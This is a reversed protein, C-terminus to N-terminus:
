APYWRASDAHVGAPATRTYGLAPKRSPDFTNRTAKLGLPRIVQEEVVSTFARGTV